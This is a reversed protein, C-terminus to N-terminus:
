SCSLLRVSIHSGLILGLSGHLSPHLFEYAEGYM